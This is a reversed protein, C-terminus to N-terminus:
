GAYRGPGLSDLYAKVDTGSDEANKIQKAVRRLAQGQFGDKRGQFM